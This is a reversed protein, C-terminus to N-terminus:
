TLTAAAAALKEIEAWNRNDIAAQPAVWSGGVCLVNSLALYDAVNTPSIGGTPCFKVNGFPGAFAKLTAAGGMAEAPFFKLHNLGAAEAAMVESATAVGPLIAIERRGAAEALERSWGPSVVFSAGADQAAKLNAFSTVTGAGVIADPLAAAMASIAPLAAATRLTIELVPLGGKVLAAGIPVADEIRDITLVPIVPARSMLDSISRTM